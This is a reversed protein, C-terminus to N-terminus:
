LQADHSASIAAEEYDWLGREAEADLVSRVTSYSHGPPVDIVFLGKLRTQHVPLGLDAMKQELHVEAQRGGKEFVIVRLTSHGSHELIEDVWPVEPLGSHLVRVVDGVALRKAFAPPSALRFRHEDLPVAAVEEQAFPPWDGEQRLRIHVVENTSSMLKRMTRKM